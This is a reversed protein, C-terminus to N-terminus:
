LRDAIEMFYGSGSYISGVCSFSYPSYGNRPPKIKIKVIIKIINVPNKKVGGSRSSSRRRRGEAPATTNYLLRSFLIFFLNPLSHTLSFFFGSSVLTKEDRTLIFRAGSASMKAEKEWQFYDFLIKLSWKGERSHSWVKIKNKERGTNRWVGYSVQRAATIKLARCSRLFWLFFVFVFLCFPASYLSLSAVVVM